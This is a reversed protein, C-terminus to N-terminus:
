SNAGKLVRALSRFAGVAMESELTGDRTVNEACGDLWRIIRKREDARVGAILDCECNAQVFGWSQLSTDLTALRCLPDHETRPTPM